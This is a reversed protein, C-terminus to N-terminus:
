QLIIVHFEGRTDNQRVGRSEVSKSQEFLIDVMLIPYPTGPIDSHLVCRDIKVSFLMPLPTHGFAISPNFVNLIWAKLM